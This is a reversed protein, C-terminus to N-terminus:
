KTEELKNKIEFGKEELKIELIKLIEFTYDKHEKPHPRYKLHAIEHAITDTLENFPILKGVESKRYRMNTKIDKFRGNPDEYWVAKTLSIIIHQPICGTSKHKEGYCVGLRKKVGRLSYRFIIDKPKPLNEEEIIEYCINKIIDYTEKKYEAIIITM